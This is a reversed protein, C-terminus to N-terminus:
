AHHRPPPPMAAGLRLSAPSTTAATPTAPGTLRSDFFASVAKMGCTISVASAMEARMPCRPPAPTHNDYGPHLGRTKGKALGLVPEAFDPHMTRPKTWECGGEGM